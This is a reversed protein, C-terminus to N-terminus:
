PAFEGKTAVMADLRACLDVGCQDAFEILDILVWNEHLRDGRRVYFDMINQGIPGGTPDIGRFAVGDFVGRLSPWGTFAALVGDAIRARHFGGRRNPFSAVSPGQAHASFEELGHASGVGWPGYWRMDAEWYAEMGMSAVDSGDLRNCGGLMREVLQMTAASEAPDQPGVALGNGLEPAPPHETRAPFPPLLEYGAQSAMGVVDLLMRIEVIQEGAFRHFVGFRLRMESGTPPIGLWPGTMTGVIDGTAAVWVEGNCEGGLFVYPETVAGPLARGIPSFVESFVADRGSLHGIPAYGHFDVDEAIAGHADTWAIQKARATAASGM